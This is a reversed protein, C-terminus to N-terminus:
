LPKRYWSEIFHCGYWPRGDQASGPWEPAEAKPGPGLFWDWSEIIHGFVPDM